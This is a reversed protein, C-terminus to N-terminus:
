LGKRSFIKGIKKLKDNEKVLRSSRTQEIKALTEDPKDKSQDTATLLKPDFTKKANENKTCPYENAVLMQKMKTILEKREVVICCLHLADIVLERQANAIRGIQVKGLLCLACDVGTVRITTGDREDKHMNEAHNM